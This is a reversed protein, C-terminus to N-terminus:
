NAFSSLGPHTTYFFDAFEDLWVSILRAANHNIINGAGGPFSHPSSERFVHGVRSCPLIELTGGCM